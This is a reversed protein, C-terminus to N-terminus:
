SVNNYLALGSNDVWCVVLFGNQKIEPSTGNQWKWRSGLSVSPSPSTCKIVKTYSKGSPGNAITVSGAAICEDPTDQNVTLMDSVHVTTYATIKGVDGEKNIYAINNVNNDTGKYFLKGDGYNLCLEGQDLNVTSPIKGRTPTRKLLIKVM